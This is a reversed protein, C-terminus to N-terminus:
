KHDEVVLPCEQAPFLAETRSVTAGLGLRMRWFLDLMQWLTELTERSNMDQSQLM